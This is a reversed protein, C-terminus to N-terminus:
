ASAKAMTQFMSELEELWWERAASNRLLGAVGEAMGVYICWNDNKNVFSEEAAAAFREIGRMCAREVSEYSQNIDLWIADYLRGM